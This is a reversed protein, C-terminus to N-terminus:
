QSEGEAGVRLSVPESWGLRVQHDRDGDLDVESAVEPYGSAVVLYRGNGLRGFEYRGDPGTHVTAVHRGDADVLRVRIDALPRGDAEHVAVGRLVGLQTGLVPDYRAVGTRPLEITVAMPDFGTATVTLTYQGPPVDTVVYAGRENSRRAAVVAGAASTLIVTAGRVPAGAEDTVTGALGGASTLQLDCVTYPRHVEVTSAHPEHHAGRVIVVYSGEEPIDLRYRGDGETRAMGAQGGTVNIVTLVAGGLPAGDNGRITGRLSPQTQGAAAAALERMGTAPWYRGNPRWQPAETLAPPEGAPRVPHFLDDHPPAAAPPPAHAPEPPPAPTPDPPDALRDPGPRRGVVVALVLVVVVVLVVAAVIALLYPATPV